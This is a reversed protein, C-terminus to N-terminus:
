YYRPTGLNFLYNVGVTLTQVNSNHTTFTDPVISGSGLTAGTLGIFQYDVKLTWNYAFAWEFGAGAMWGDATRSGGFTTVPGSITTNAQVWGGGGKAYFLWHDFGPSTFGIRGALTALWNPQVSATVLGVGPALVGAGNNNNNAIADFYGEIGLVVFPGLQYNLGAQGGGVFASHTSSNLTAGTLNDTINFNEWGAGLNAGAYFGTWTFAPPPVYVPPPAKTALDAAAAPAALAALVVFPVSIWTMSKM